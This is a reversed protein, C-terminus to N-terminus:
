SEKTTLPNTKECLLRRPLFLLSNFKNGRVLRPSVKCVIVEHVNEQFHSLFKFLIEVSHSWIHGYIHYNNNNIWITAQGDQWNSISFDDIQPVIYVSKDYFGIVLVKRDKEPINRVEFRVLYLTITEIM